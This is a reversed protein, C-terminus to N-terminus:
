LKAQLVGAISELKATNGTAMQEGELLSSEDFDDLYEIAKDKLFNVLPRALNSQSSDETLGMAEM